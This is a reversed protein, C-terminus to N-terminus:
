KNEHLDKLLRNIQQCIEQQKISDKQVSLICKLAEIRTEIKISTLQKIIALISDHPHEISLMQEPAKSCIKTFKAKLIERDRSYNNNLFAATNEFIKQETIIKNFHQKVTAIAYDSESIEALQFELESIEARAILERQNFDIIWRCLSDKIFYGIQALKSNILDRYSPHFVAIKALLMECSLTKIQKPTLNRYIESASQNAPNTRDESKQRDAILSRALTSVSAPDQFNDNSLLRAIKNAYFERLSRNDILELLKRLRKQCNQYDEGKNLDFSECIKTIYWDVWFLANDICCAIIQKGNATQSLRDIDKYLTPLTAVKFAILKSNILDLNNRILKDTAKVGAADNDLCIIINNNQTLKAVKTLQAHSVATGLTAIANAFGLQHLKIVDFNGEVIIAANEQAIHKRALHYPFILQKKQFVLTEPSNLYKPLRDGLSRGSFGIVQGQPNFLPIMLRDRYFDYTKGEKNAVLGSSHLLETGFKAKMQKLLDQWSDPAYGLRFKDISDRDIKRAQLYNLARDCNKLNAQFWSCAQENIKILQQKLQNDAQWKAFEESNEDELNVSINHRDALSIVAESFNSGTTEMVFSIADGREGCGFCYFVGKSPNVSFSPTKENHFPCLGLYEDASKQKLLITEGIIDVINTREKIQALTTQNIKKM